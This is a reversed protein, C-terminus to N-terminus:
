HGPPLSSGCFHAIKKVTRSLTDVLDQRYQAPANRKNLTVRITVVDNLNV